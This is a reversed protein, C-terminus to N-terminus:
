KFEKKFIEKTSNNQNNSKKSTTKKVKQQNRKSTTRKVSLKQKSSKREPTVELVKLQKKQKPM